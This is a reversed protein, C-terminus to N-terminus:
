LDSERIFGNSRDDFFYYIKEINAMQENLIGHYLLALQM